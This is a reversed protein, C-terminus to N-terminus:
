GGGSFHVMFARAFSGFGGRTVGGSSTDSSAGSGTSPHGPSSDSSFFNSRSSWGGAGGSSSTSGRPPCKAGAQLDSAMGPQGPGCSESPMLAYAGGGIAFSGMLLLAVHNSRKVPAASQIAVPRRRGFERDPKEAM